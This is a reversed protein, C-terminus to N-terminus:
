ESDIMQQGSTLRIRTMSKLKKSQAMEYRQRLGQDDPKYNLCWRLEQEAEEMRDQSYLLKGYAEHLQYNTPYRKIAAVLCSEANQPQGLEQYASVAQMWARIPEPNGERGAERIAREAYMPLVQKLAAEDGNIRYQQVVRRLAPWDPEFIKIFKEPDLPGAVLRIIRKQTRVEQHFARKWYALAEEYRSQTWEYRGRDFLVDADYPRVLEAQALCLEVSEPGAGDLFSLRSLQLYADGLLPCLQVALKNHQHAAYLFQVNNGFARKLWAHMEETTEFNSAFVTERIQGTSMPNESNSQLIEFYILYGEAVKFQLEADHPNKKAAQILLNVQEVLQQQAYAKRQEPSFGNEANGTRAYSAGVSESKGGMSDDPEANVLALRQFAQYHQEGQWIGLSEQVLWGSIMATLSVIGWVIGRPFYVAPETAEKSLHRRRTIQYLRCACAAQILLMTLCAPVWWVFDVIAHLYNAVFSGLLAAFLVVEQRNEAYKLGRLCWYLPFLMALGLLSIGVLGTESLVQL